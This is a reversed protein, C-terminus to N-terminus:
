DQWIWSTLHSIGTDNDDEEAKAVAAPGFRDGGGSCCVM